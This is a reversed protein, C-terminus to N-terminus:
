VCGASGKVEIAGLKSGDLYKVGTLNRRRRFPEKNVITHSIEMLALRDRDPPGVVM